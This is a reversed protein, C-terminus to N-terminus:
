VWAPSSVCVYSPHGNHAKGVYSCASRPAFVLALKLLAATERHRRWEAVAVGIPGGGPGLELRADIRTDRRADAGRDVLPNRAGGVDHALHRQLRVSTTRRCLIASYDPALHVPQHPQDCPEVGGCLGTHRRAGHSPFLFFHFFPFFFALCLASDATLSSTSRRATRAAVLLRRGKNGYLALAASLLTNGASACIERAHQTISAHTLSSQRSQNHRSMRHRPPFGGSRPGPPEELMGRSSCAPTATAADRAM